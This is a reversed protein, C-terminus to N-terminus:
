FAQLPCSKADLNSCSPFQPNSYIGTQCCLWPLSSFKWVTVNREVSFIFPITLFLKFYRDSTRPILSFETKVRILGSSPHLPHFLCLNSILHSFLSIIKETKAPVEGTTVKNIKGWFSPINRNFAIEKKKKKEWWPCQLMNLADPLVLIKDEYPRGETLLVKTKLQLKRAVNRQFVFTQKQVGRTEYM